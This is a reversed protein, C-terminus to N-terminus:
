ILLLLSLINHVHSTPRDGRLPPSKREFVTVLVSRLPIHSFPVAKVIYFSDLGVPFSDILDQTSLYITRSRYPGVGSQSIPSTRSACVEFSAPPEYYVGHDLRDPLPSWHLLM